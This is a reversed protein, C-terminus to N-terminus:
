SSRARLYGPRARLGTATTLENYLKVLSESMVGASFRSRVLNRGARGMQKRVEESSLVSLIANALPQADMAGIIGAGAEAVEPAIGVQDSIICPLGAAMAEIPAIGLNESHSPLAFVSSAAFASLKLEGGIFGTWIVDDQLGLEVARAHMARTFDATGEGAVVLIASPDNAKVLNFADLLADLGKKPDIRSLFLVAKRGAARPFERLFIGPGPQVNDPEVGIPIIASLATVGAGEAERREQESTYHVAAARQLLPLEILRFSLSKLRRRRHAMGWRSLVGLPRICYPVGRKLSIYAAVCSTYSFLAHIHVLDYDPVQRWLWVSMPWSAKYFNSQRRFYISRYGDPGTIFRGLPVSLHANTGDDDTTAVDVEIGASSLSRAIVPLAFSPGGHRPSISPIVHLVRM